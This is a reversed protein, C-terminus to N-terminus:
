LRGMMTLYDIIIDFEKNILGLEKKITYHGIDQELLDMVDEVQEEVIM